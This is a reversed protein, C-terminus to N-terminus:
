APTVTIETAKVAVWIQAGGGLKLDALAGSTIEAVLPLPGGIQVRVCDLAPEISLVPAQWVNRPSGAPRERFLAVARPHITALIPGDLAHAAVLQTGGHLELSGGRALGRLFNLGVLDAVYRSRPQGCIEAITGSQVIRGDELVAIRDALAMADVATHAVLLRVGPFAQLHARLERRLELRSTADAAALPEDLLLLRPELALARALAARQAQGGSLAAPKSDAHPALGVRELWSRAVDSAHRKTLGRRRLGFAVNALASLHPFLLLDQFVFGVGRSEPPVFPGAPGGDLVEGGLVISGREVRLLGAIVLLCSSKGAGNPGVLALTEGEQVLLDVDLALSGRRLGFQAHLTM